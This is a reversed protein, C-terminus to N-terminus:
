IRGSLTSQASWISAYKTPGAHEKWVPGCWLLLLALDLPLSLVVIIVLGAM